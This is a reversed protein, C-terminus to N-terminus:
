LVFFLSLIDLQKNTKQKTKRIYTYKVHFRKDIFVIENSKRCFRFKKYKKTFM